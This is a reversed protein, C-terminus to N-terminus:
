SNGYRESNMVDLMGDSGLEPEPEVYRDTNSGLQRRSYKTAREAAEEEDSEEPKEGEM